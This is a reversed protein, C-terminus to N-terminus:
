SWWGFVVGGAVVCLMGYGAMLVPWWPGVAARLYRCVRRLTRSRSPVGLAAWEQRLREFEEDNM